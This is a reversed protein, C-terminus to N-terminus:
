VQTHDQAHCPVTHLRGKGKGPQGARSLQPLSWGGQACVSPCLPSVILYAQNQRFGCDSFAQRSNTSLEFDTSPLYQCCSRCYYVNSRLKSVDQPVQFLPCPFLLQPFPRECTNLLTHVPICTHIYTHIYTHKNTPHQKAVLVKFKFLVFYFPRLHCHTALPLM